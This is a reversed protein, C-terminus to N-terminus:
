EYQFMIDLFIDDCKYFIRALAASRTRLADAAALHRAGAIGTAGQMAIEALTM